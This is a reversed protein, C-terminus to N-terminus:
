KFKVHKVIGAARLATLAAHPWSPAGEARWARAPLAPPRPVNQFPGAAATLPQATGPAGPRDRLATAATDRHFGCPGPLLESAGAKARLESRGPAAMCASLAAIGGAEM